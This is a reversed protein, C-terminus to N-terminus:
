LIRPVGPQRDACEEGRVIMELLEAFKLILDNHGRVEPLYAARSRMIQPTNLLVALVQKSVVHEQKILAVKQCLYACLADFATRDFVDAMFLRDVSKRKLDELELDYDSARVYRGLLEAAIASFAAVAAAFGV